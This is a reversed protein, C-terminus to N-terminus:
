WSITMEDSTLPLTLTHVRLGANDSPGGLPDFKQIGGLFAHQTSELRVEKSGIRAAAANEQAHLVVRLYKFHPKFTGRAPSLTLTRRAADHTLIRAHYVGKEFDYTAGDDTYWTTRRTASGPWLHVILTDTPKEQLSQVLSQAILIGGDRVFLPLREIPSDVISSSGGAFETDDHVSYWKGGSPFYVRTYREYSPTPCVMLDSGLTFQHLYQWDYVNKDFPHEIAISRMVPMGTQSSEYFASYITPMIRYRMSIYNRCIQEVREGFSWPEQSKNDIAVHARFFPTFASISTWRAFLEKSPNGTFGGVDMGVYPVGTLGMSNLLRVGAMMHDDNSQNDGTWVASYRQIGSYGSRTLIFPRENKLLARTGEYTSRAMQMGYVNRGLLHSAPGTGEFGFLINDPMFQGWTAIENMDNWFGRVGDTVLGKFQEGWWSRAKPLTFDTFHCWGPWVQGQYLTGDSYKLFMDQAVGDDYQRYGSEVKIGPDVIVTMKFNLDALKKILGKPDPFRTSDWTFLKYDKMYHIDLYIVDAPIGRERFTRAVNLVQADPYYSYRCQQFGLSWLPPLPTTGTLYSYSSIISPISSGAIVYYRLDGDEVGFSSFRNNSAGFNFRTRSSNDLFLGYMTSGSHLGIYFPTSMYIPDAGSPYGFFDTNWHTYGNGRRDLPGTKEGLGIFREDDRMVKYNTVHSGAWSVGFGPDDEVLVAGNRDFVRVALPKREVLVQLSDTSISIAEDNTKIAPRIALPKGVVAYSLTDFRDSRTVHIKVVSATIVEVLVRANTATIEVGRDFERLGTVNGLREVALRQASAIAGAAFLVLLTHLLRM